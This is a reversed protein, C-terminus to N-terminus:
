LDLGSVNRNRKKKPRFQKFGNQWIDYNGEEAPLLLKTKSSITKLENDNDTKVCCYVKKYKRNKRQRNVVRFLWQLHYDTPPFSYGIIFVNEADILAKAMSNWIKSFLETTIPNQTENVNVEQKLQTPAIIAAQEFKDVEHCRNQVPELGYDTTISFNPNGKMLWNFSGHPKLVQIGDEKRNVNTKIHSYHWSDKVISNLAKELITDYNLSIFVTGESKNIEFAKMFNKYVNRGNELRCNRYIESLLARLEWGAILFLDIKSSDPPITFDNSYTDYLCHKDPPHNTLDWAWGIWKKKEKEFNYIKSYIGKSCFELFTWVEELSAMEYNCNDRHSNFFDLMICLAPYEKVMKRVVAHGFFGKDGPLPNGCKLYGSGITAGTGVIIVTKKTHDNM